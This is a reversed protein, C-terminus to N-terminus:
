RAGQLLSGRGEWDGARAFGVQCYGLDFNYMVYTLLLSRLQSANRGKERAYFDVTRDTRRVDKDVACVRERWGSFRCLFWLVCILCSM